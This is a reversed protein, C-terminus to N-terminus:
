NFEGKNNGLLKNVNAILTSVRSELTEVRRKLATIETGLSIDARMMTDEITDIKNIRQKDQPSLVGVTSETVIPLPIDTGGYTGGGMVNLLLEVDDTEVDISEVYGFRKNFERLTEEIDPGTAMVQWRDSSSPNNNTNNSYQSVYSSGNYFVIDLKQYTNRENWNGKFMPLIRGIIVEAM